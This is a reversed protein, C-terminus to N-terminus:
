ANQWPCYKKFHGEKSMVLLDEKTKIQIHFKRKISIKKPIIQDKLLGKGILYKLFRGELLLVKM